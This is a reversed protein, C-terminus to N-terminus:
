IRILKLPNSQECKPFIKPIPFSLVVILIFRKQKEYKSDNRIMDYTIHLLSIYHIILLGTFCLTLFYM